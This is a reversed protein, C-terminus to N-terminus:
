HGGGEGLIRELSHIAQAVERLNPNLRFARRYTRLALRWKKQKLYCYAMSAAAGFHRPNRRLTRACDAIAASWCGRRIQLLARRHYAEAFDPARTLLATYGALLADDAAAGPTELLENLRRLEANHEPTSARQWLSWLAEEALERVAEEADYLREALLSNSAMTGVLGLALVAAQRTQACTSHLLRQLTGELYCDAVQAAFRDLAVGLREKWAAIPEGIQRPPLQRYFRLLEAM